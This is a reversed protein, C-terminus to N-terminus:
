KLLQSEISSFVYKFTTEFTEIVSALEFKIQLFQIDAHELRLSIEIIELHRTGKTTHVFPQTENWDYDTEAYNKRISKVWAMKHMKSPM